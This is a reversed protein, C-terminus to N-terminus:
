VARNLAPNGSEDLSWWSRWEGPTIPTCRIAPYESSTGFDWILNDDTDEGEEISGSNDKDCWVALPEDTM